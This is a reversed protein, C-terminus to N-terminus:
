NPQTQRTKQNEPKAGQLPRTTSETDVGRDWGSVGPDEGLKMPSTGSITHMPPGGELTLQSQVSQLRKSARGVRWHGLALAPISFVLALILGVWWDTLRILLPGIRVDFPGSSAAAYLAIIAFLVLSYMGFRLARAGRRLEEGANEIRADLAAQVVTVDLGCSRCFRQGPSAESGCTPCFM